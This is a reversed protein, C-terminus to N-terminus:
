KVKFGACMENFANIRGVQMTMIVLVILFRSASETAQRLVPVRPVKQRTKLMAWLQPGTFLEDFLRASWRALLRTTAASAKRSRRWSTGAKKEPSV